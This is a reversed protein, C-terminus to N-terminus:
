TDIEAVNEQHTCTHTRYGNVRYFLFVGSYYLITGGIGEM